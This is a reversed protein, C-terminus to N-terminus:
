NVKGLKLFNFITELDFSCINNLEIEGYGFCGECDVNKLMNFSQKFGYKIANPAYVKGRFNLCPYVDGNTDIM